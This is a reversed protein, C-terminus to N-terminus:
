CGYGPKKRTFNRLLFMLYHDVALGKHQANIVNHRWRRFPKEALRYLQCTLHNSSLVTESPMESDLLLLPWGSAHIHM